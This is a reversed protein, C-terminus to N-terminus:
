RTWRKYQETYIFDSLEDLVIVINQLNYYINNLSKVIENIQQDNLVFKNYKCDELSIDM